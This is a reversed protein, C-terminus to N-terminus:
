REREIIAVPVSMIVIVYDCVNYVYLLLFDNEAASIQLFGRM